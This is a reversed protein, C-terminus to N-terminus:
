RGSGGNMLRLEARPYLREVWGTLRDITISELRGRAVKNILSRDEGLQDAMQSQNLGHEVMYQVIAQALRDKTREALPASESPVRAAEFDPASLRNIIDGHERSKPMRSKAIMSKAM